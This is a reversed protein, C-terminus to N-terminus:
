LLPAQCESIKDSCKSLCGPLLPCTFIAGPLTSLLTLFKVWSRHCHPCVYTNGQDNIYRYVPTFECDDSVLWSRVREYFNLQLRLVIVATCNLARQLPKIPITQIFEYTIHPSFLSTFTQLTSNIHCNTAKNSTIICHYMDM